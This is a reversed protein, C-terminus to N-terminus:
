TRRTRRGILKTRIRKIIKCEPCNWARGTHEKADSLEILCIDNIRKQWELDIIKRWCKECKVPSINFSKCDECEISYENPM